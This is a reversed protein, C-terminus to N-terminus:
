GQDGDRPHGEAGEVVKVGDGQAAALSPLGVARGLLPLAGRTQTGPHVRSCPPWPHQLFVDTNRGEGDDPRQGARGQPKPPGWLESNWPTRSPLLSM